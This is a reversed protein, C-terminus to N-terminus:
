SRRSAALRWGQIAWGVPYHWMPASRPRKRLAGCREIEEVMARSAPIDLGAPRVFRGLFEQSRVAAQASREPAEGLQRFHDEFTDSLAVIGGNEALVHAFHVTGAQCGAFEPLAITYIQRGVIAAEIMASTNLGVIASAHFLSDFLGQDANMKLRGQWVKVRADPPEVGAWDNQYAPHPRVLVQCERLWGGEASQRLERVWRWVFEREGPAMLGSSCIYLVLPRAPDLGLAGFFEERPTSCQMRFFADFRPAGTVAVRDGPLDQYEIAESRQERNWVLVRDPMARIRGKSTLNDWGYILYLVPVGLHNASKVYDTQYSGFDVLPTVLVMDPVHARMFDLFQPDPPTLWEATAAIREILRWRRKLWPQKALARNWEKPAKSVARQMLKEAESYRPDLFRAADATRRVPDIFPGWRDVRQSHCSVIEIRPHDYTGRKAKGDQRATALIVTHGREALDLVVDIFHRTGGLTDVFFLIRM